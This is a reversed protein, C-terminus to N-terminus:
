LYPLDAGVSLLLAEVENEEMVHRVDKLRDTFM